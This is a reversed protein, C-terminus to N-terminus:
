FNGPEVQFCKLGLSRWMDVVQQRDDFVGLINYKDKLHNNYIEEKIENDKRYDKTPRMFLLDYKIKNNYLWKSTLERCSGDRGSVIIIKNTERLTNLIRVMLDDVEDLHVKSWEFPGRHNQMHALTGDIDFIYCDPLLHNYTPHKYINGM